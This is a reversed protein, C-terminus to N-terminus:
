GRLLMEGTAWEWGRRPARGLLRSAEPQGDFDERAADWKLKLGTQFSINGLHAVSTSRHGTEADAPAPRLGRVAELFAAAHERTADRVNRSRREVRFRPATGASPPAGPALEPLIEYGVRDALLTGETGYFAMGNPRDLPGRANYYQMGPSRLGLGLGNLNIGEYQLVFDDYQCTVILVDPMEGADQLAYRAGAASVTRPASVGLIQQVTDLRHTGFDTIYGGSYDRFWRYTGLFRRRDFPVLPAPGCYMDWDLGAPPGGPEPKGIGGPTMNVWNWARVFHVKGIGGERVISECERFHEASRHQMGPQVIRSFRKAAEVVARGERISYAFPKELYVHKGAACAAVAAGAHWHDPTAVLVADIDTRELLRRFDQHVDCGGGSEAKLREANPLYVDAAALIGAGAERLWRAVYRGRGGCGIVGLRVRENAGSVKAAAAATMGLLTRRKMICLAIRDALPEGSGGTGPGSGGKM